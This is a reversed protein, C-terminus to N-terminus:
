LWHTNRRLDAIDAHSFSFVRSWGGLLPSLSKGIGHVRHQILFSMAHSFGHWRHFRNVLFFCCGAPWRSRLLANRQVGNWWNFFVSVAVESIRPSLLNATTKSYIQTPEQKCSFSFWRRRMSNGYCLGIPNYIANGSTIETEVWSIPSISLLCNVM